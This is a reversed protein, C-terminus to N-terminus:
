SEVGHTKLVDVLYANLPRDSPSVEELTSKFPQDIRIDLRVVDPDVRNRRPDMSMECIVDLLYDIQDMDVAFNRMYEVHFETVGAKFALESVSVEKREMREVLTKAVDPRRSKEIHM